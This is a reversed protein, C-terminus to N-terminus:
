AAEREKPLDITIEAGGADGNSATVSGGHAAVIAEVISLGLGSGGSRRSRSPDARYFREFAHDAAGPPFGPGDDFVVFRATRGRDEVLIRILTGEPTHVRANALLNSVVQHLRESDGRVTVPGPAAVSVPRTPDITEHDAAADTAVESLDVAGLDLPQGQGLRTLMLLDEILSGMRSSESEIRYWARDEAETTELGGRRRLEAYGSIAAVPTRLEHSADAIFRRLRERGDRESAVAEEIHALMENLSVGLRGLETGPDLDPVRQTLDGAAIAEATDVMDAVPRMSREVTWWTAAGGILLVGIGALLLARVLSSVANEVDTLPIARVVKAGTPFSDVYARYHVTGDVSDLDVFGEADQLESVDPLPDPDDSFGSPRAFVITGDAEIFVEAVSTLSPEDDGPRPSGGGPPEPGPGRDAFGTLDRDIQAVLIREVSRSAVIGVAAIVVLLLATFSIVLKARLTM